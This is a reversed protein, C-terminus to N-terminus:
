GTSVLACFCVCLFLSLFPSLSSCVCVCVCVCVCMYIYIYIYIYTYLMRREAIPLCYPLNPEKVKIYRGIWPFSFESNLSTFTRKFFQGQTANQEPPPTLYVCVYIYVCVCVYIHVYTPLNKEKKKPCTHSHRCTSLHLGYLSFAVNMWFLMQKQLGVSSLPEQRLPHHLTKSRLSLSPPEWWSM